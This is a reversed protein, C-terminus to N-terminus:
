YRCWKYKGRRIQKPPESNPTITFLPNARLDETGASWWRNERLLTDVLNSFRSHHVFVRCSSPPPWKRERPWSVAIRDRWGATQPRSLTFTSWRRQRRCQPVKNLASVFQPREPLTRHINFNRRALLTGRAVNSPNNAKSLAPSHPHKEKRILYNEAMKGRGLDSLM